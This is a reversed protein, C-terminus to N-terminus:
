GQLGVNRSKDPWELSSCHWRDHLACFVGLVVLVAMGESRLASTSFFTHTCPPSGECLRLVKGTHLLAAHIPNLPCNYSLLQWSGVSSAQAILTGSDVQNLLTATDNQQIM